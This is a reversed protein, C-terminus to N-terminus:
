AIERYLFGFALDAVIEGAAKHSQIQSTREGQGTEDQSLYPHSVRREPPLHSIFRAVDPLSMGRLLRLRRIYQGLSEEARPQFEPDPTDQKHAARKRPSM